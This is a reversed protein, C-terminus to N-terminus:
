MLINVVFVLHKPKSAERKTLIKPVCDETYEITQTQLEGLLM